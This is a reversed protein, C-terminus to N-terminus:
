SNIEYHLGDAKCFLFDDHRFLLEQLEVNLLSNRLSHCPCNREWLGDYQYWAEDSRKVAGCYHQGNFFTMGM